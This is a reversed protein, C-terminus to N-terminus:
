PVSGSVTYQIRYEAVLCNTEVVASCKRQPNQVETSKMKYVILAIIIIDQQCYECAPM